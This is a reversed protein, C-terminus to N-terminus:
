RFWRTLVQKRCAVFRREESQKDKQIKNVLTIEEISTCQTSDSIPWTDLLPASTPLHLCPTNNNRDLPVIPFAVIPREVFLFEM